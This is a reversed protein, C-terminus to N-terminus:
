PRWLDADPQVEHPLFSRVNGAVHLTNLRGLHRPAVQTGFDDEVNGLGDLDAVHKHYELLLLQEPRLALRDVRNNMGYSVPVGTLTIPPAIRNQYDIGTLHMLKNNDDWRCLWHCSACGEDGPGPDISEITIVAGFTIRIGCDADERANNIGGLYIEVVKSSIEYMAVQYRDGGGDLLDSLMHRHQNGGEVHLIYLGDLGESRSFDHGKPCRLVSGAGAADVHNVWGAPAPLQYSSSGPSQSAMARWLQSLNSQCLASYANEKASSLTPLLMAVLLALIAVVVLLEVLTFARGARGHWAPSSAM